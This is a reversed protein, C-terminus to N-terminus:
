NEKSLHKIKNLFYRCIKEYCNFFDIQKIIYYGGIKQGM